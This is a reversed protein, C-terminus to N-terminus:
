GAIHPERITGLRQEPPRLAWSVAVACAIIFPVVLVIPSDGSALRSVIAGVIDFMMGAYAWEKLRPFRPAVITAAGLIKWTGLFALFYSPYGLHAMEEVFHPIHLLLAGGPIAFALAALGNAIRYVISKTQMM